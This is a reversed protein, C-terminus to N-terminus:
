QATHYVQGAVFFAFGTTTPRSRFFTQRVQSIDDYGNSKAFEAELKSLTEELESPLMEFVQRSETKIGAAGLLQRAFRANPAEPESMFYLRDESKPDESFRPAKRAATLDALYDIGPKGGGICALEIGYADMEKAYSELDSFQYNLEWREFRPTVKQGPEAPAASSTSGSGTGRVRFLKKVSQASTSHGATVITLHSQSPIFLSKGDSVLPGSISDPIAIEDLLKKERALEMVVVEGDEDGVYIREGVILPTSYSAAYLDHTWCVKGTEADLCHLIGAVDSIVLLGDRIAASNITRHMQEEVETEGNQNQDFSAYSWIAASNPNPRTFDDEKAAQIRDFAKAPKLLEGVRPQDPIESVVVRTKAAEEAKLVGADKYAQAVLARAEEVTKGAVQIPDILPFAASGDDRIPIRYLSSPQLLDDLDPKPEMVGDVKFGLIDKPQLRYIGQVVVESSVDGRKTPDICWLVGPGEGHEPNQGTAIYIKGDKIVPTAILNNRTGAGGLKWVSRKPNCDFKWLLNSQGKQIDRFDFSYLWGDGGAFIAQPVGEFVGYAPSSWQGHLVNDGPSNDQWVVKGTTKDLAVFSPAEANFEKDSYDRGHSTGVLILDGVVIPSSTQLKCPRVGLEAVLDAQWTPKGTKADLCVVACRNSLFYVNGQEVAPTSSMGFGPWDFSNGAALRSSDYSWLLEGSRRDVAQLCPTDKGDETWKLTGYIVRGDAIVPAFYSSSGLTLIREINEGTECSWDGAAEGDMANNRHSNGGFMPWSGSRVAEVKPPVAPQQAYLWASSISAFLIALGLGFVLPWNHIGRNGDSEGLLRLIRSRFETPAGGDVAVSVAQKLKSPTLCLEAMKLLADIYQVKSIGRAVVLDDCSVERYRNAQHSLWWAAPHFFLLCEIIRQVLVVWLDRRRLHVLEHALVASVQEMTMGNLMATPLLITPRLLGMVVPVACDSCKRLAPLNQLGIQRTRRRIESLLRTDEVPISKRFIVRSCWTSFLLRSMMVLVGLAYLGAIFTKANISLSSSRGSRAEVSPFNSLVNQAINREGRIESARPSSPAEEKLSPSPANPLSAQSDALFGSPQWGSQPLLANGLFCIALGCLAAVSLWYKATASRVCCSFLWVIAVLLLGQWLVQILAVAMRDAVQNLLVDLRNM